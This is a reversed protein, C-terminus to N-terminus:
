IRVNVVFFEIQGYDPFPEVGGGAPYDGDESVEAPTSM